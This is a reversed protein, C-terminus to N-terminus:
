MPVKRKIGHLMPGTLRPRAVPRLREALVDGTVEAIRQYTMSIWQHDYGFLPAKRNKDKTLQRLWEGLAPPWVGDLGINEDYQQTKSCVAFEEPVILVGWKGPERISPPVIHRATLVLLEHPHLHGIFQVLLAVGFLMEGLHFAAAILAIAALYPLPARSTGPALRRFGRLSRQMWPLAAKGLTTLLLLCYWLSALLRDGADHNYGEFFLHELYECGAADLEATNTALIAAAGMWDLYEKVSKGYAGATGSLEQAIPDVPPAARIGLRQQKLTAPQGPRGRPATSQSPKAKAKVPQTAPSRTSADGSPRRLPAGRSRPRPRALM